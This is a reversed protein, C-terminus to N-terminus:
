NMNDLVFMSNAVDKKIQNKLSNYNNFKREPRIFRLFEVKIYKEYINKDLGIIHVELLMTNNNAGTPRLGINAVGFYNSKMSNIIVKVLYVGNLPYLYKTELMINATKFGITRAMMKGHRVKGSIYYYRGLISATKRVMGKSLLYRIKSSSVDIIKDTVRNISEYIFHYKSSMKELFSHDGIRNKGFCFDNGTIVGKVSFKKVLIEKIFTDHSMNMLQKNFKLVFLYSVGLKRILTIKELKNVILKVPKGCQTINNPHPDFTLVASSGGSKNALCVCRNIITQHGIHICDFKGIVMILNKIQILDNVDCPYIIM